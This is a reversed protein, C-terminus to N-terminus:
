IINKKILVAYISATDLHHLKEVEDAMACIDIPFRDVGNEYRDKCITDALKLTQIARELEKIRETGQSRYKKM